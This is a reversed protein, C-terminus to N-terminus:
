YSLSMNIYLPIPEKRNLDYAQILIETIGVQSPFFLLGDTIYGPFLTQHKFALNGYERTILQILAKEYAHAPEMVAGSVGKVAGGAGAEALGKLSGIIVKGGLISRVMPGVRSGKLAEKFVRSNIVLEIAERSSYPRYFISEAIGIIQDPDILIEHGTDNWVILRISMIGAEIINLPLVTENNPLKAPDAYIDQGASFRAAAIKLGDKEALIPYYGPPYIAPNYVINPLQRHACGFTLFLLFSIACCMHKKM